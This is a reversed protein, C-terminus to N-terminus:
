VDGNKIETRAQTLWDPDPQWPVDIGRV